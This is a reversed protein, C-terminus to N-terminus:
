DEDEDFNRKPKKKAKKTPREDEDEEDEEDDEAVEPKKSKRVPKEDEDEDDDEHKSTKKKSKKSPKEDEDEDDTDDQDEDEDRSSSSKKKFRDAAPKGGGFDEGKKNTIIQISHLWVSLGEGSDNDWISVNVAVNAYMGGRVSQANFEKNKQDIVEVPNKSTAKIFFRGEYGKSDSKENGDKIMAVKDPWESKDPGWTEKALKFIAKKLDQRAQSDEEMLIEVSYTIKGNYPKPEHLQPYSLIVDWLEVEVSNSRAM